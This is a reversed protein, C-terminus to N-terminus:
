ELLGIIDEVDGRNQQEGQRKKYRPVDATTIDMKKVTTFLLSKGESVEKEDYFGSVTTVLLARPFKGFNNQLYCLVESVVLAM